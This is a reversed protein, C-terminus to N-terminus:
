STGQKSLLWGMVGGWVIGPGPLGILMELSEHTGGLGRTLMVVPLISIAAAIEVAIACAISWLVLMKTSGTAKRFLLKSGISSWLLLPVFTLFEQVVHADANRLQSAIGLESIRLLVVWLTASAWVFDSESLPSPAQLSSRDLLGGSIVGALGNWVAVGALGYVARSYLPWAFFLLVPVMLGILGGALTRGRKLLRFVGWGLAATLCIGLANMGVRDLRWSSGHSLTASALAAYPFAILIWLLYAFVRYKTRIM